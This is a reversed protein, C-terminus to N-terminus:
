IREIHNLVSNFRSFQPVDPFTEKLWEEAMKHDTVQSDMTWFGVQQGSIKNWFVTIVVPRKDLTGIQRCIGQGQQWDVRPRDNRVRECQAKARLAWDAWLHHIKDDDAEVLCVTERIEKEGHPLRAADKDALEKLFSGPVFPKFFEPLIDVGRMEDMKREHGNFLDITTAWGNLCGREYSTLNDLFENDVVDGLGIRELQGQISDSTSVASGLRVYGHSDVTDWSVTMCRESFHSDPGYFTPFAKPGEITEYYHRLAPLCAEATPRLQEELDLPVLIAMRGQGCAVEISEIGSRERLIQVWERIVREKSSGFLMMDTWKNSEKCRRPCDRDVDEYAKVLRDVITDTETQMM